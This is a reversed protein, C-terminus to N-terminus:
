IRFYTGKGLKKLHKRSSLIINESINRRIKASNTKKCGVYYTDNGMDLTQVNSLM